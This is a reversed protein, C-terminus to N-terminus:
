QQKINNIIRELEVLSDARYNTGKDSVLAVFDTSPAFLETVSVNLATAIRELTATTTNGSLAKALGVPSIGIKEALDKQSMGREKCLNKIRTRIAM